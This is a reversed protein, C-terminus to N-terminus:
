PYRDTTRPSTLNRPQGVPDAQPHQELALLLYSPPASNKSGSCNQCM